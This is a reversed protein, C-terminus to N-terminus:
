LTIVPKSPFPNLNEIEKIDERSLTKNKGHIEIEKNLKEDVKRVLPVQKQDQLKASIEDIKKELDQEIGDIKDGLDEKTAELDQKVVELEEKSATQDFGNKIMVALKEFEGNMKEFEGNMKEFEGNMKEFENKTEKDM